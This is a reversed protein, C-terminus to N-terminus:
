GEPVGKPMGGSSTGGVGWGVTVGGVGVGWAPPAPPVPPVPVVVAALPTTTGAAGGFVPLCYADAMFRRRNTRMIKSITATTALPPRNAFGCEADVGGAGGLGATADACLSAADCGKPVGVVSAMGLSLMWVLM